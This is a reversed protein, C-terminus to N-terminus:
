RLARRQTIMERGKTYVYAVDSRRPVLLESVPVALLRHAASLLYTLVVTGAVLSTVAAGTAGWIPLSIGLGTATCALGWLQAVSGAGPHGAGSLAHALVPALSTLLSAPLLILVLPVAAQFTDGFLIPVAIPSAAAIACQTVAVIIATARFAPALVQVDGAAVRPFVISAIAGAPATGVIAVTTAVAYLGLARPELLPIMLLQDLRQNALDALAGPWARLGFGVAERMLEISPHPRRAEPLLVLLLPLPLVGLTIGLVAASTVTLTDTLYLLPVCILLGVPGILRIMVVGRWREQGWLVDAMLNVLLAIPLLALGVRLCLRAGADEPLLAASLPGSAIAVATGALLLPVAATGILRGTPVHRAGARVAWAGLGLQAIFPMVGLPVLVSALLGRGTAGLAHGLLPGSVLSSLLTVMTVATLGSAVKAASARARPGEIGAIEATATHRWAATL